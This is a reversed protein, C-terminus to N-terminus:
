TVELSGTVTRPVGQVKPDKRPTERRTEHCPSPTISSIVRISRRDESFYFNGRENSRHPDDPIIVIHTSILFSPRELRWFYGPSVNFGEVWYTLTVPNWGSLHCTPPLHCQIWRHRPTTSNNGLQRDWTRRSRGGDTVHLPLSQTVTTHHCSHVWWHRPTPVSSDRIRTVKDVRRRFKLYTTPIPTHGDPRIVGEVTHRGVSRCPRTCTLNDTPRGSPRHDKPVSM